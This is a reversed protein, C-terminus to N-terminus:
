IHFLIFYFLFTPHFTESVKQLLAVICCHLLVVTRGKLFAPTRIHCPATRTALVQFSSIQFQSPQTKTPCGPLAPYRRTVGPKRPPHGPPVPATNNQEAAHQQVIPPPTNNCQQLSETRADSLIPGSGCQKHTSYRYQLYITSVSYICQLYM